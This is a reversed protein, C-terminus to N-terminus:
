FSISNEQIYDDLGKFAPNWLYTGFRLNMRGLLNILEQYGSEVHHNQIFDMDFATMVQQTGLEILGALTKELHKLSNVGPVAIVTQGTLHHIIDAKLPGETLIVCESVQGAVHVWGEAGCGSEMGNSSVWRYKRNKENDRRIQLGQIRGKIDRVPILFGRKNSIFAWKGDNNIYFGPVGSLRFGYSIIRNALEREYTVPTTKYENDQITQDSLGRSLLNRMHDASLPLMSLFMTYAKHRTEIDSAPLKDSEKKIYLVSNCSVQQKVSYGRLIRMLEDRVNERPYRTYRCYLDFVGGSFGCKPCRFVDKILNINLHRNKGGYDCNPCNIYYSSKGQPPYPIPLLPIIDAMHFIEM